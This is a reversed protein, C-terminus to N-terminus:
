VAVALHAGERLVVCHFHLKGAVVQEATGTLEGFVTLFARAGAWARYRAVMDEASVMGGAAEELCAAKFRLLQDLTNRAQSRDVPAGPAESKTSAGPSEGGPLRGGPASTSFEVPSPRPSPPPDGAPPTMGASPGAPLGLHINIPAGHQHLAHPHHPAAPQVGLVAGQPGGEWQTSSAERATGSREQPIRNPAMLARTRYQPPLFAEGLLDEDLPSESRDGIRGQGVGALAFGFNAFFGIVAVLGVSWWFHLDKAEGGFIRQLAAVDQSGGAVAPRAEVAALSQTIEGDLVAAREAKALESKLVLAAPGDGNPYRKSTKRLELDLEARIADIPRPVGIAKREARRADLTERAVDGATAAIERKLSGDALTVGMVSWGSVQSVIFCAIFPLGFALRKVWALADNGKVAFTQVCTWAAIFALMMFVLGYLVASASFGGGARRYGVISNMALELAFCALMAWLIPKEALERRFTKRDATMM